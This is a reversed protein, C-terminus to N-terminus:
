QLSEAFAAELPFVSQPRDAALSERRPVLELEDELLEAEGESEDVRDVALGGALREADVGGLPM